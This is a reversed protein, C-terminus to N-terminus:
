QRDGEIPMYICWIDVLFIFDIFVPFKSKKIQVSSKDNTDPVPSSVSTLHKVFYISSIHIM